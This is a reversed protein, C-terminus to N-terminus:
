DFDVFFTGAPFAGVPFLLLRLKVIQTTLL